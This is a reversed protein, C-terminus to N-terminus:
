EIVEDALALMGTANGSPRNFSEVLGAKVPDVTTVFVIPITSTAAKAASAGTSASGVIVSVQRRVLGAALAALREPRGDAWRYEIAVNQGEVYGTESLGQRLAAVLLESGEATSGRLFGIVPMAAPQARAVRPWAAAAGLLTLLERRKLDPM